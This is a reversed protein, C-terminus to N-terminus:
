RITIMGREKREYYVFPIELKIYFYNKKKKLSVYLSKKKLYEKKKNKLIM